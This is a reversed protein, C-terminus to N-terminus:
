DCLEKRQAAYFGALADIDADSLPKAIVSM